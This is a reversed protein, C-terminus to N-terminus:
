RTSYGPITLDAWPHDQVLLGEDAHSPPAPAAHQRWNDGEMAETEGLGCLHRQLRQRLGAVEPHFPHQGVLQGQLPDCANHFALERGGAASYWYTWDGTFVAYDATAGRGHHAFVADRGCDGGALDQLRVGDGDGPDIRAAACVTPLVDVLSAPRACRGGAAFAGPRRAILPIRASADHMGRKGFCGFDGLYEGHDSTFLILTRDLQGTAELEALIRGIQADVFSICAYYYARMQRVLHLDMGRDRYKYRNQTRNIWTAHDAYGPPLWPMPMDPGRYLKHWPSPPAFPPHPHIFSAMLAWPGDARRERIWSCSRDGIWRTPHLEAPMQAPQPIYYMEGRVGHPDALHGFGQGHLFRLYDDDQPSAVIEEQSERSAFGRLATPDPTFHMKGIAHTRYGARGLRAPWSSGDDTPMAGNATCGHRTTWTGYHLSCRAAVCVPSPTYARTFATGEACLRDLSPTRIVPNGLVGITDARQMDTMIVLINDPQTMGHMTSSPRDRYMGPMCM